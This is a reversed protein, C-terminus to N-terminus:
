AGGGSARQDFFFAPYRGHAEEFVTTRTKEARRSLSSVSLGKVFRGLPLELCGGEREEAM